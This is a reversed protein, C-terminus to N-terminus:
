EGIDTGVVVSATRPESKRVVAIWARAYIRPADVHGNVPLTVVSSQQLRYAIPLASDSSM